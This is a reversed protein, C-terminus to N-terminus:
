GESLRYRARLGGAAAVFVVSTAAAAAFLGTFGGSVAAATGAGTGIAGGAFFALSFLAMAVGRDGAAADTMWTQLAPHATAWGFGILTSAVIATTTTIQGALVGYAITIACGGVVPLLWAPWRGPVVRVLQSAPLVVVGFVATTLGSVIVTHGREQLASPLYSFVGILLTGELATLALVATAWPSSLVRRLSDLTRPTRTGGPSPLGVLVVALTLCAVGVVVYPLRWSVWQAAAAAALTGTSMGLALAATLNSNAFTRERLALADGFHALVAPITGALAAGAVSRSALILAPESVAATTLAAVGAVSTALTVVRMRGWRPSATSWVLQLAAYAVVYGTLALSVEEIARGTEMAIVPLLPPLLARDVTAFFATTILLAPSAHRSAM